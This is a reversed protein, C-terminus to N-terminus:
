LQALPDYSRKSQIKIRSAQANFILVAIGMGLVAGSIVDSVHHMYDTIRTASIFIAIVTPTFRILIFWLEGSFNFFQQLFLSFWTTACFSISAHGSPFSVKADKQYSEPGTCRKSEKNFGCYHFYNPRPRAVFVKLAETILLTICLTQALSIYAFCLELKRPYTIAIFGIIICPIVIVIIFLLPAGITEGSYPYNEIPNNYVANEQHPEIAIAILGACAGICLTLIWEFINNIFCKWFALLETTFNDVLQIM